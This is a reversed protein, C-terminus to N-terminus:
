STVIAAEVALVGGGDTVKSVVGALTIIVSITVSLVETVSLSAFTLREGHTNSIHFTLSIVLDTVCVIVVAEVAASIVTICLIAAAWTYKFYFKAEM